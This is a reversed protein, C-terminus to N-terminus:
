NILTKYINIKDLLLMLFIEEVAAKISCIDSTNGQIQELSLDPLKKCFELINIVTIGVYGNLVDDFTNLIRKQSIDIKVFCESLKSAVSYIDESYDIWKEDSGDMSDIDMSGYLAFQVKEEMKSFVKATHNILFNESTISEIHELIEQKKKEKAEKGKVDPFYDRVIFSDSNIERKLQKKAASFIMDSVNKFKAIEIPESLNKMKPIKCNNEALYNNVRALRRTLVTQYNM